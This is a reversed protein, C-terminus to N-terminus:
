GAIKTIKNSGKPQSWWREKKLMMTAVEVEKRELKRQKQQKNQLRRSQQSTRHLKESADVRVVADGGHGCAAVGCGQFRYVAVPLLM